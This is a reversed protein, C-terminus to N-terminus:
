QWIIKKLEIPELQHLKGNVKIFAPLEQNSNMAYLDNGFLAYRVSESCDIEIESPMHASMATKLILTALKSIDDNGPFVDTNLLFVSGKGNQHETLVSPMYENTSDFVKAGCAITNFNGVLKGVKFGHGIFKPDCVPGWYPFVYNPTNAKSTFKIGTVSEEEFGTFNVGLLEQFNGNNYPLFSGDRKIATNLHPLGMILHGGNCVYEVLTQYIEKTMTNWGLFCVLSYNSLVDLQTDAPIIDYTGYPVQGSSDKNGTNLNDFWPLKSYLTDLLNWSKEADNAIFDPNNYQGLVTGGSWLGPCGDLNGLIFLTM